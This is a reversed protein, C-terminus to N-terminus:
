LNKILEESLEWLAACDADNTASKVSSNAPKKKVFYRGNLHEIGEELCLYLSTDAGKEPSIMLARGLNFLTAFFSKSDKAFGTNVVGPHLSYSTIGTGELRIALERAFMINFLKSNGYAKFTNYGKELQLNTPDFRGSRHAESAVSIVRAAPANKLLPLLEQTLTFYSMHNIAFTLEWGDISTERESNPLMGANNVLRDIHDYLNRIEEAVKRIDATKSLDAIFIEISDKGTQAILEKKAAEAKQPNRCVMGVHYGAKLLGLTTAKGIGSNAGTVIAIM